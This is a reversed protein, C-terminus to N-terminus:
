NSLKVVKKVFLEDLVRVNLFYVGDPINSFDLDIIPSNVEHIERKILERGLEDYLEIDIETPNSISLFSVSSFM